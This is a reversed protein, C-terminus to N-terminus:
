EKKWNEYMVLDKLATSNDDENGDLSAYIYETNGRLVNAVMVNNSGDEIAYRLLASVVDPKAKFTGNATTVRVTGDAIVAGEFNPNDITVNGSTIVLHVDSDTASVMVNQTSVVVDGDTSGIDEGKLKVTGIESGTKIKVFEKLKDSDIINDFVIAKEKDPQEKLEILEHYNMILKTCLATFRKTYTVKNDELKNNADSIVTPLLQYGEAKNGYISNAALKLRLTSDTNAFTLANLYTSAYENTREQNANYMKAFYLNAAEENDFSMYYYVLGNGPDNTTVFVKEPKPEGDEHAIYSSLSEGLKEVLVDESFEMYNSNKMIETYEKQTLPNKSYMSQQNTKNVGICEGPILYLLQNSKVAISEGTYVNHRKEEEIVNSGFGGKNESKTGVFAHGAVTIVDLGSLDLSANTGNILIASSERANVMSNGYGNYVTALTVDSGNGKLNLDNAINSEGLLKVTSSAAIIDEAWVDCLVENVFSAHNLKMDHKIVFQSSGKQLVSIKSDPDAQSVVMRDAYVNGEISLSSGSTLGSGLTGDPNENGYFLGSDAIISYSPIDPLDTNPAFEFDPFDLRIDTQIVSVYGKSDKYYVRLDKLVIGNNDFTQMVGKDDRINTDSTGSVIVAGYGTDDAGRWMTSPKVFARIKDLDYYKHTTDTQLYSWLNEYYSTQLIARKQETPYSTYNVLVDKYAAGLADSVYRQLGISIEDLVQEASYFTDKANKNVQKMKVNILSTMMITSVLISVFAIIVIVSVLSMGRNDEINLKVKKFWKNVKM